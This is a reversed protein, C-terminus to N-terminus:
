FQLKAQVGVTMNRRPSPEYYRGNAENVIVSGVYNRDTLNDVRLYETLAGRPTQQMFGFALSVVTYADAFDSNLDNM